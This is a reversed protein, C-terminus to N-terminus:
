WGGVKGGAEWFAEELGEWGGKVNKWERLVVEAGGGKGKKGSEDEVVELDVCM